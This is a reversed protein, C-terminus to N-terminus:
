LQIYARGKKLQFFTKIKKTASNSAEKSQKERNKEYCGACRRRNDRTSRELEELTHDALKRKAQGTPKQKPGPKLKESPTGLLLSRVLSERFQLITM